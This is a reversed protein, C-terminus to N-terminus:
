TFVQCKSSAETNVSIKKPFKKAGEGVTSAVQEPIPIDDHGEDDDAGLCAGFTVIRM